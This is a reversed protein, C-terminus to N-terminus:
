IACFARGYSPTDMNHQEVKAENSLEITYFYGTNSVITSSATIDVNQVACIKINTYLTALKNLTFDIKAKFASVCAMEAISPMFWVGVVGETYDYSPNNTYHYLFSSTGKPASSNDPAGFRACCCPLPFCGEVNADSIETGKTKWDTQATALEIINATNYSGEFALFANCSSISETYYDENPLLEGDVQKFPCPCYFTDDNLINDDYYVSPYAKSAVTMSSDYPLFGYSNTSLTSQTKGDSYYNVCDFIGTTIDVTDDNLGVYMKEGNGTGDGGSDPTEYSMNCLSMIITKGAEKRSGYFTSTCSSPIVVIGIPEYDSHATKFNSLNNDKDNILQYDTGNSFAVVTYEGTFKEPENISTAYCDFYAESSSKFDATIVGYEHTSVTVTKAFCTYTDWPLTITISSSGSNYAIIKMEVGDPFATFIDSYSSTDISLTNDTSITAYVLRTKIPVNALTTVNTCGYRFTNSNSFTVIEDNTNRIAITESCKAYNVAIEGYQISDTDSTSVTPLKGKVSSHLNKIKLRSM